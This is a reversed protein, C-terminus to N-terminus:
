YLKLFGLNTLRYSMAVNSVEFSKSLKYIIDDPSQDADQEYLQTIKKQILVKPMLLAAAFANAEREQKNEGTSSEEDRYHIKMGMGKKDVFLSEKNRHLLYHGIEHAITFRRRVGSESPNVGISVGEEQIFLAGSVSQGFDYPMIALKLKSAIREVPVPISKINFKTLIQDAAAEAARNLKM